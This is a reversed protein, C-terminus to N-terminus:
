KPPGPLEYGHSVAWRIDELEEEIAQQMAHAARSIIQLRFIPEERVAAPLEPLLDDAFM